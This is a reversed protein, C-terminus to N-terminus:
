ATQKRQSAKYAIVKSLDGTRGAEERLRALVTNDANTAGAVSSRVTREPLPAAKRPTVKLKSRLDAVAFAFKVPDEIAALERAKGPNKHLAYQLLASDKPNDPGALIIGRQVVSFAGEFDQLADEYDPVRLSKGAQTVADIRKSWQAQQQEQQQRAARERDEAARKREHWESLAQDHKEEDYGFDALKPREGIPQTDAPATQTAKLRANEAEVQRLKRITERQSKRLERVWPAAKAEDEEQQAPEDGITVTVGDEEDAPEDQSGEAETDDVTAAEVEETPQEPLEEGQEVMEVDIAM